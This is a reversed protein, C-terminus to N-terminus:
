LLPRTVNLAAPNAVLLCWITETYQLVDRECDAGLLLELPLKRDGNQELVLAMRRLGMLHTVVDCRGLHCAIHLPSNQNADRASIGGPCRDLLLKIVGLTTNGSIADHIPTGTNGNAFTSIQHLQLELFINALLHGSARSFQLPNRSHLDGKGRVKHDIAHPYADFVLKVASMKAM